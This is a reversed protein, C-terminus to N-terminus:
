ESDAGGVFYVAADGSGFTYSMEILTENNFENNYWWVMDYDSELAYPGDNIVLELQTAASDYYAANVNYFPSAMYVYAKGLLGHAAYKTMRYRDEGSWSVPLDAAAEKLDKAILKFIEAKSVKAQDYEEPTLIHDILPVEGFFRVLEFNFYARLVKAEAVMIRNIEAASVDVRSILVNARYIGFYSRDWLQKLGDTIPTVEYDYAAWFERIGLSGQNALPLVTLVPIFCFPRTDM